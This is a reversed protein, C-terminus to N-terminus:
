ETASKRAIFNERTKRQPQPEKRKKKGKEVSTFCSPSEWCHKSFLGRCGEFKRLPFTVGGTVKIEEGFFRQQYFVNKLCKRSKEQM